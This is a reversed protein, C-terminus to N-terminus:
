IRESKVTTAIDELYTVLEVTNVSGFFEGKVSSAVLNQLMDFDAMKLSKTKFKNVIISGVM